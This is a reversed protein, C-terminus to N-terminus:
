SSISVTTVPVPLPTDVHQKQIEDEQNKPEAVALSHYLFKSVLSKQQLAYRSNNKHFL